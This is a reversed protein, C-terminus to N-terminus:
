RGYIPSLATRPSVYSSRLPILCHGSRVFASNALSAILRNGCFIIWSYRRSGRARCSWGPIDRLTARMIAIMTFATLMSLSRRFAFYNSRTRSTNVLSIPNGKKTELLINLYANQPDHINITNPSFNHLSFLVHNFVNVQELPTLNYNM